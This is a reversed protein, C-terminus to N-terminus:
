VEVTNLVMANPTRNVESGDHLIRFEQPGYTSPIGVCEVFRFGMGRPM